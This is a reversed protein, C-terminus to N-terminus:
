IVSGLLTVQIDEATLTAPGAGVCRAWLSSTILKFDLNLAPTKIYLASGVVAPAGLALVGLYSALDGLALTWAANDAQAGPQTVNYTQLSYSTEGSIVAGRAIKVLSTSLRIVSGAPVSTDDGFKFAFERSAGVIDGGLYAGAVPTFNAVAYCGSDGAPIEVPKGESNTLIRM